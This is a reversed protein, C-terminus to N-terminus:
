PEHRQEQHEKGSTLMGRHRPPPLLVRGVATSPPRVVGVPDRCTNVATSRRASLGRGSPANPLVSMSRMWM